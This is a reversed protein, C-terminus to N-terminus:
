EQMYESIKIEIKSEIPLLLLYIILSYFLTLMSVGSDALLSAMGLGKYSYFIKIIGCCIGMVGSALCVEGTLKIAEKAKKLQLMSEAKKKGLALKLAVNFDKVLGASALIPVILVILQLMSIVDFYVLMDGFGEETVVNLLLVSCIVGIVALIYMKVVGEMVQLEYDLYIIASSDKNIL